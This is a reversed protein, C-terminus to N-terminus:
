TCSSKGRSGLCVPIGSKSGSHINTSDVGMSALATLFSHLCRDQSFYGKPGQLASIPKPSLLCSFFLKCPSSSLNEFSPHPFSCSERGQCNNISHRSYPLCQKLFSPHESYFVSARHEINDCDLPLFLYLLCLFFLLWPLATFDGGTVLIRTRGSM